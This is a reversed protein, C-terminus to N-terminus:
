LVPEGLFKRRRERSWADYNDTCLAAVEVSPVHLRMWVGGHTRCNIARSMGLQGATSFFVDDCDHKISMPVPLSDDEDWHWWWGDQDPLERSWQANSM